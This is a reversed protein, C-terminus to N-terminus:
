GPLRVQERVELGLAAIVESVRSLSASAYNTAEYRQIQQEKLGLRDALERQSLGLAVRAKILAAPFENFSDTKIIRRKGSRLAEYQKLEAELDALQSRLADEQGKRLRPHVSSHDQSAFESLARRFKATQARTIRYERENKIM